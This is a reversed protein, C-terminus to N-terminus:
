GRDKCCADDACTKKFTIQVRVARMKQVYINILMRDTCCYWSLHYLVFHKESTHSTQLIHRM